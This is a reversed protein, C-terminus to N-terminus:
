NILSKNEQYKQNLEKAILRTTQASVGLKKAREEFAGLATLINNIEQQADQWSTFGAIEALAQVTKLPPKKGYGGFSTAHENFPHLSFTADYFPAVQWQGQDHQLFSWNKSHDDQNIAFLNFLARKFQLQGAKPSQCLHRTVKILDEYDLSPTRFDADLLGCASHMHLRGSAKDGQPIYDFREVALWSRAGSQEPANILKWQPAELGIEDAISLYIAECLGEEHKLALNHSTFKVLWATDGKSPKTRCENPNSANIYVQAKPRAGGSSGVALLAHLVEQTQGDLEDHLTQNFLAQAQLGLTAIDFDNPEEQYISEPTYSLAGMARDGVLALRDMQTVQNPLVGHRRFLRDQLLLGWGDPLSDAFVGHLGKHPDQPAQQLNTSPKLAFPSLSGYQEIYSQEYQFFVGKRSQALRGAKIKTGNSLTREVMLSDVPKFDM